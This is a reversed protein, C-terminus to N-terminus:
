KIGKLRIYQEVTTIRFGKLLGKVAAMPTKGEEWDMGGNTYARFVPIRYDCDSFHTISFTIWNDSGPYIKCFYDLAENMQSMAEQETM